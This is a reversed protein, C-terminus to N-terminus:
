LHCYHDELMRTFRIKHQILKYLSIKDLNNIGNYRRGERIIGGLIVNLKGPQTCPPNFYGSLIVSVPIFQTYAIIHVVIVTLGFLKFFSVLISISIFIYEQVFLYVVGYKLGGHYMLIDQNFLYSDQGKGCTFLLITM